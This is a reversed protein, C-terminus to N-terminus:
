CSWLQSNQKYSERNEKVYTSLFVQITNGMRQCAYMNSIRNDNGLLSSLYVRLSYLALVSNEQKEIGAKSCVDKLKDNLSGQTVPLQNNSSISRYNHLNLFIYGSTNKLGYEDLYKKQKIQFEKILDIIENNKIPLCYRYAGKPRDKLSGNPKKDKESWSNDIKFTYSGEYKVLQDFKLVQLEEPRLGLYTDVLLALKSVSNAVTSSKYEKLLEKRLAAVEDKSFLHWKRGTSFDSQRFFLKLYSRPIPNINLVAKDLLFTFFVRFHALTVDIVTSKKVSAKPHNKIYWHAFDNFFHQDIDKLQIDTENEKKLYENLLTLSYSWSRNTTATISQAKKEVYKTYEVLFKSEDTISPLGNKYGAYKVKLDIELKQAELKTKARKTISTRKGNVTPQIRVSWLGKYEGKLIKKIM